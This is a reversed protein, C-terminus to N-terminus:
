RLPEPDPLDLLYGGSRVRTITSGQLDTWGWKHDTHGTPRGTLEYLDAVTVEQYQSVVEFLQSLVEEADSRSTLVIEDFDHRARAARQAARTITPRDDRPDSMRNYSIYGTSGAVPGGSRRRGGRAEGYILKEIGSSAADVMADKAAPLLVNFVVYHLSTKMDGALFTSKFQKGLSPRRRVAEATTVREVRKPTEPAEGKAKQSNPPFDM